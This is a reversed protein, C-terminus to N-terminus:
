RPRRHAHKERELFYRALCYADRCHNNNIGQKAADSQWKYARAIPKWTGPNLKIVPVDMMVRDLVDQYVHFTFEDSNMISAPTEIVLTNIDDLQIDKQNKTAYWSQAGTLTDFSYVGITYGPDVALIKM